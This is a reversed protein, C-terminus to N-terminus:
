PAYRVFGIIASQEPGVVTQLKQGVFLVGAAVCHELYEERYGTQYVRAVRWAALTQVVLALPIRSMQMRRQVWNTTLFTM